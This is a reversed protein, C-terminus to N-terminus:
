LRVKTSCVTSLHSADASDLVNAWSLTGPMGSNEFLVIKELSVNESNIKFSDQSQLDPIMQSLVDYHDLNGLKRPCVIAKIAVKNITYALESATFHPNITVLPFGAILCAWKKSYLYFRVSFYRPWWAHNVFSVVILWKPTNQAWIGVADGQKLGNAVLGAAFKTAEDFMEGFTFNEDNEFSAM